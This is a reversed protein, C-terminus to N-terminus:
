EKRVLTQYITPIVFLTLLTGFSMGGIITWGMQSRSVAGAGSAIVLPLAGLVVAATTMLIPRFRTVAAEIVADRKSLGQERLQGTFEVILIGHKSILGVLTILGIETYINLTGGTVTLAFLAGVMSLPVTFLVILPLLFSEFQASLVLYIFLIAFVFIMAMTDSEELFTRTGGGFDYSMTSTFYKNAAVKFLDLAEDMTFSPSLVANIAAARQQQFHNLSSPNIVNTITVLTSLPILAGSESKVNIFNIDAPNNRSDAVVQPIVNYSQGDKIFTSADPQGFATNLATNIDDMSVGLVDAKDRNISVEIEPKNLSLDTQVKLIGPNAEMDQKIQNAVTSLDDDSGTTLVELELPYNQNTSPMSPPSMFMIEGGTIKSSAATLYELIEESSRTRKSWDVLGLMSMGMNQSGHAGNIVVTREAEPVTKYIDYLEATYQKLYDSSTGTPTQIRSVIVGQDESPALESTSSLPIYFIVGAILVALLLLWVGLHSEFISVLIKKYARTTATLIYEIYHTLKSESEVPRLAKSCMMPSLTLAIVGSIVVAGALTFAFERFLISTLGSAFGIPAYVAALTITMAIIAFRIERAGKIAAEFPTLGKEIYRHINEVVVIADDVVMGIGFVFALLTLTNLSYDFMYMICFAGILSLPITVLPIIIARFSGMFILLVFVVIITSAILTSIVENISEQIYSSNDHVIAIDIGSPVQQKMDELKAKINNATSLPNADAKLSISISTMLKGNAYASESYDDAGLEMMGLDDLHVLKDNVQKVVLHKFDDLTNIDTTANITLVQYQRDIEGAQAQLNNTSLASNIDDATVGLSAMKTPDIWLRIAYQRRGMVEASGVGSVTSLQPVAVNSLYASIEEPSISDSSFAILMAPPMQDPSVQTIAPSEIGDPLKKLISSIDSNIEALVSNIDANLHLNITVNSMGATSTSEMYDIDDVGAISNEIQTTVYSEVTSASAGIYSTKINVVNADMKPFQRLTLNSFAILGIALILLNFATAFVPRKIFFDTFQSAM